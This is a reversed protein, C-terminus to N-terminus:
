KNPTSNSNSSIIKGNKMEYESKSLHTNNKYVDIFKNGNKTVKHEYGKSDVYTFKGDTKQANFHKLRLKSDESEVYPAEFTIFDNLVLMNLFSDDIDISGSLITISKPLTKLSANGESSLNNELLFCNGKFDTMVYYDDNEVEVYVSFNSKKLQKFKSTKKAVSKEETLIDLSKAETVLELRAEIEKLSPNATLKM